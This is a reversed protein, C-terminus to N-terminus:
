LLGASASLSCTYSNILLWLLMFCKPFRRSSYCDPFSAKGEPPKYFWKGKITHYVRRNKVEPPPRYAVRQRPTHAPLRPAGTLRTLPWVSTHCITIKRLRLHTQTNNKCAYRRKLIWTPTGTLPPSCCLILPQMQSTIYICTVTLNRIKHRINSKYNHSIRGARVIM